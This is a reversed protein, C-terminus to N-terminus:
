SILEVLDLQIDCSSIDLNYEIEKLKAILTEYLAIQFPISIRIDNFSPLEVMRDSHWIIFGSLEQRYEDPEIEELPVSPYMKILQSPILQAYLQTKLESLHKLEKEFKIQRVLRANSNIYTSTKRAM